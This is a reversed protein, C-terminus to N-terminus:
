QHSYVKTASRRRNKGALAKPKDIGIRHQPPAKAMMHVAGHFRKWADPVMEVRMEQPSDKLFLSMM